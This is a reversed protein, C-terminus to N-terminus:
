IEGQVYVELVCIDKNGQVDEVTMKVPHYKGSQFISGNVPNFSVKSIGVNDSFLGNGWTVKVPFDSKIVVNSPCKIRPIERDSIYHNKFSSM